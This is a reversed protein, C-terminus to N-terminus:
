AVKLRQVDTKFQCVNKFFDGFTLNGNQSCWYVCDNCCREFSSRKVMTRADTLISIIKDTYAKIQDTDEIHEMEDLMRYVEAIMGMGNSPPTTLPTNEKENPTFGQVKDEFISSEIANNMASTGNDSTGNEKMMDFFNLFNNDVEGVSGNPMAGSVDTEDSYEEMSHQVDFVLRKEDDYSDIFDDWVVCDDNPYTGLVNSQSSSTINNTKEENPVTVTLSTGSTINSTHSSSSTKIEKQKRKINKKPPCNKEVNKECNMEVNIEWDMECIITYTNASKNKSTGNTEKKVYNKESLGNTINRIQRECLNLKEMLWGNHIQVSSSDNLSANNLILYLARFEKDTLNHDLVARNLLNFDIM